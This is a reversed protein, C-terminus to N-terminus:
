SKGKKALNYYVNGVVGKRHSPDVLVLIGALYKPLRGSSNPGTDEKLPSPTTADDDMVLKRVYADHKLPSNLVMGVISNAETAKLSGNFTKM